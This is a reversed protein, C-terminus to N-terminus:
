KKNLAAFEAATKAKKNISEGSADNEGQLPTKVKPVATIADGFVEKLGEISELIEDESSGTIFKLHKENLGNKLALNVKKEALAEQKLKSLEESLKQHEEQIEKLAEIKEFNDRSQTENRRSLAEWKEVEKLAEELTSIAKEPDNEVLNESGGNEQM